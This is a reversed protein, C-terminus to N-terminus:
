FPLNTEKEYQRYLYSRLQRFSPASSQLTYSALGTRFKSKWPSKRLKKEHLKGLTRLIFGFADPGNIEGTEEDLYTPCLHQLDNITVTEPIALLARSNGWFRGVGTFGVPVAKQHEKDLYKCLYGASYMDWKIFNNKHNHFRLHEDSEPEAIRNWNVALINRLGPLDHPLSLFVHFHPVGRTQFELIWLYHIEPFRTRIRQLWSNLHKKVTKGDPKSNHYTLSFQSVLPVTTNGALFRLRRKSSDSFGSIESRPPPEPKDNSVYKKRVIKVAQPYVEFHPQQSILRNVLLPPVGGGASGSLRNESNSSQPGSKATNQLHSV